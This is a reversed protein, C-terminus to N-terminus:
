SHQDFELLYLFQLCPSQDALHLGCTKAQAPLFPNFSLGEIGKDRPIQDVYSFHRQEGEEPTLIFDYTNIGTKDVEVHVGDELIFKLPYNKSM